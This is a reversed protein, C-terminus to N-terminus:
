AERGGPRQVKAWGQPGCIPGQSLPCAEPDFMKQVLDLRAVADGKGM